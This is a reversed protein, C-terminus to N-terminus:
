RQSEAPQPPKARFCTRQASFLFCFVTKMSVRWRLSKFVALFCRIVLVRAISLLLLRQATPTLQPSFRFCPCRKGPPAPRIGIYRTWQPSDSNSLRPTTYMCSYYSVHAEATSGVVSLSVLVATSMSLASTTGVKKENRVASHTNSLLM